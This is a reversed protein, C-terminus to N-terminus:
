GVVSSVRVEESLTVLELYISLSISLYLSLHLSPSLTHIHAHQVSIYMM